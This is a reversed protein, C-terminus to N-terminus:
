QDLREVLHADTSGPTLVIAYRDGDPLAIKKRL